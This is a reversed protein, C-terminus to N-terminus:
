IDPFTASQELHKARVVWTSFESSVGPEKSQGAEAKTKTSMQPTFSLIPSKQKGGRTARGKVYILLDKLSPFLLYEKIFRPYFIVTVRGIISVYKEISM